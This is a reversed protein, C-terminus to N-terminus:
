LRWHMALDNVGLWWAEDRALADPIRTRRWEGSKTREDAAMCEAVAARVAPYEGNMVMEGTAATHTSPTRLVRDAYGLVDNGLVWRAAPRAMIREVLVIPAHPMYFLTHKDYDETDEDATAAAAIDLLGLTALDDPLMDPDYCVVEGRAVGLAVCLALLVATQTRAAPNDSVRGLALCRIRRVAGRPVAAHVAAMLAELFVRHQSLVAAARTIAAAHDAPSRPPTARLRSSQANRRRNRPPPRAVLHWTDAETPDM